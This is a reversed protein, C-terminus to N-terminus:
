KADLANSMQSPIDKTMKKRKTMQWTFHNENPDWLSKQETIKRRSCM